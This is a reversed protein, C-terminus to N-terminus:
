MGGSTQTGESILHANSVRKTISHQSRHTPLILDWSRAPVVSQSLLLDCHTHCSHGSFAKPLLHREDGAWPKLFGLKNAAEAKRLCFHTCVRYLWMLIFTISWPQRCHKHNRWSSLGLAINFDVRCGHFICQCILNYYFLYLIGLVTSCQKNSQSTCKQFITFKPTPCLATEMPMNLSFVNGKCLLFNIGVLQRLCHSTHKNRYYVYYVLEEQAQCQKIKSPNSWVNHKAYTKKFISHM